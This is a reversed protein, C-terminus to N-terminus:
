HLKLLLLMSLLMPAAHPAAHAAAPPLMPPLMPLFLPCCCCSCESVDYVLMAIGGVVTFVVTTTTNTKIKWYPLMWECLVPQMNMLLFMNSFFRNLLTFNCVLVFWLYFWISPQWLPFNGDISTVLLLLFLLLLLLVHFHTAAAVCAFVPQLSLVNAFFAAVSVVVVFM